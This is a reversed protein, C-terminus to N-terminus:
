PRAGLSRGQGTTPDDNSVRFSLQHQLPPVPERGIRQDEAELLQTQSPRLETGFTSGGKGTQGAPEGSQEDDAGAAMDKRHSPQKRGNPAPGLRAMVVM